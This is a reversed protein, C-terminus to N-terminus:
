VPDEPVGEMLRNKYRERLSIIEIRTKQEIREEPTM